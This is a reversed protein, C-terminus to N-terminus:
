KILLKICKNLEYKLKIELNILKDLSSVLNNSKSIPKNMMMKDISSNTIGVMTTGTALLSKQKKFDTSLIYGVVHDVYETKINFFGTSVVFEFYNNIFLLKNEGDLKSFIISNTEPTLNARSPKNVSIDQAKTLDISLEGIANTALYSSQNNYKKNVLNIAESFIIRDVNSNEYNKILIKKVEIVQRQVNCICDEIPKIIDILNKVDTRCNEINDIRVTDSYKLYLKEVPKIIDIIEEQEKLPPIDLYLHNIIGENLSARTSLTTYSSILRRFNTTRFAYQMYHPLCIQNALANPRLRKSFGNFVAINDNNLCVSSMGLEGITESTRTLFVDGYLVSFREKESDSVEVFNSYSKPTSFNNFVDKFSLFPTGTGFFEAGKSLGSTVTYLENLKYIAM